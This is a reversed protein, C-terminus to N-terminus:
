KQRNGASRLKKVPKRELPRQKKISLSTHQDAPSNTCNGRHVWVLRTGTSNDVSAMVHVQTPANTGGGEQRANRIHKENIDQNIRSLNIVRDQRECFEYIIRLVM